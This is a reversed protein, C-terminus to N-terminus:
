EYGRAVLPAHRTVRYWGGAVLWWDCLLSMADILPRSPTPKM